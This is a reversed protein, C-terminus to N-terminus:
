AGQPAHRGFGGKKFLHEDLFAAVAVVCEQLVVDESDYSSPEWYNGRSNDRSSYSPNRPCLCWWKDGVEAAAALRYFGDGFTKFRERWRNFNDAAVSGYEAGINVNITLEGIEWAKSSHQFSITVHKRYIPSIGIYYSSAKPISACFAKDIRAVFPYDIKMLKWFERNFKEFASAM